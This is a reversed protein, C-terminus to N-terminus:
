RKFVEYSYDGTLYGAWPIYYKRSREYSEKMIGADKKFESFAEASKPAASNERSFLYFGDKRFILKWDPSNMIKEIGDLYPGLFSQYIFFDLTRTFFGSHPGGNYRLHVLLYKTDELRCRTPYTRIWPRQSLHPGLNNQVCVEADQPIMSLAETLARHEAYPKYNERWAGMGYPAPSFLLSFIFTAAGLYILVGPFKEPKKKMQKAAALVCAMVIVAEAIVWYYTGTVRAPWAIISTMGLVLSPAILLLMPWAGLGAAAGSLLFYIPLRLHDPRLVVSFVKVPDKLAGMIIKAPTDGLYYYRGAIETVIEQGNKFYAAAGSLIFAYVASIAIVTMGRRSKGTLAFYIGLCFFIPWIDEQCIMAFFVCSWATKLRDTDFAWVSWVFFAAAFTLVHFDFLNADQVIPSFWFVFPPILSKWGSGLHRRAFFYLGLGTLACALSTLILLLRPDAWIWYLPALLWFIFNAHVVIRSTVQGYPLNSTRMSLDGLSARWVAQDMNGLDNMQTQLGQHALISLTSFSAFYVFAGALVIWTKFSIKNM